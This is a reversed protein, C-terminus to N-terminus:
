LIEPTGSLDRATQRRPATRRSAVRRPPSAARRLPAPRRLSRRRRRRRCRHPRRATRRRLALATRDAATMTQETTSRLLRATASMAPMASTRATVVVCLTHTPRTRPARARATTRTAFPPTPINPSSAHTCPSATAWCSRSTTPRFPRLDTPPHPDASTPPYASLMRDTRIMAHMPLKPGTRIQPRAHRRSPTPPTAARARRPPACPPFIKTCRRVRAPRASPSTHTRVRTTPRRSPSSSTPTTEPRHGPEAREGLNPSWPMAPRVGHASTIRGLNARKQLVEDISDDSSSSGHVPSSPLRRAAQPSILLGDSTSSSELDTSSEQREPDPSDSDSSADSSASLILAPGAPKRGSAASESSELVSPTVEPSKKDGSSPSTKTPARVDSASEIEPLEVLDHKPLKTSGWASRKDPRGPLLSQYSMTELAYSLREGFILTFLLAGIVAVWWGPTAPFGREVVSVVIFHIVYMTASFDWILRYSGVIASMPVTVFLGSVLLALGTILGRRTYYQYERSAFVQAIWFPEQSGIDITFTVLVFLTYFSIQTLLIKGVVLLPNIELIEDNESKREVLIVAFGILVLLVSFVVFWYWNEVIELLIM